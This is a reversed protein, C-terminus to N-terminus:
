KEKATRYLATLADQLVARVPPDLEAVSHMVNRLSKLKHDAIGSLTTQGTQELATFLAETFLRRHEPSLDNVLRDIIAETERGFTTRETAYEFDAGLIQWSYPDHQLLGKASSKVIRQHDDHELLFGVISSQPVFVHIRQRMEAYAPTSLTGDCFGPGDHNYAGEIRSRYAAGCHLAAYAALNGGKSHGGTLIRHQPYAQAAQRLYAAAKKQAPVPCDYSMRFDERWGILTDDTGEFAIFLTQDPLLVTLAAFQLGAAGDLEKVAGGLRLSAFRPSAALARLLEAHRKDTLPDALYREAADSLPVSASGHSATVFRELRIYPLMALLLTDVPCLPTQQLTLDGRWALYDLINGM